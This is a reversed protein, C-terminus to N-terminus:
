LKRHEYFVVEVMEGIDGEYPLSIVLKYFDHRFYKNFQTVGVKQTETSMEHGTGMVRYGNTVDLWYKKPEDCIDPM